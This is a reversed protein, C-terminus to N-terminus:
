QSSASVRYLADVADLVQRRAVDAPHTGILVHYALGEAFAVLRVAVDEPREGTTIAGAAVEGDIIRGLRTKLEAYAARLRTAVREDAIAQATFSQRIRMHTTTPGDHPVLESLVATLVARPRADRATLAAIRDVALENARDFAAELLEARSPFYHQVRGASVGAEAAVATLSVAAIGADAVVALVADCIERRRADRQAGPGRTRM